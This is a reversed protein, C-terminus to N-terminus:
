LNLTMCHGLQMVLRILILEQNTMYEEREERFFKNLNEKSSKNFKNKQKKFRKSTDETNNDISILHININKINIM